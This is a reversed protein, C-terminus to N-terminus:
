KISHKIVNQVKSLRTYKGRIENNFNRQQTGKNSNRTSKTFNITQKEVGDKYHQISIPKISQSDDKIYKYSYVKGGSKIYYTVEFINEGLDIETIKPTGDFWSQNLVLEQNCYIFSITIIVIIFLVNKKM